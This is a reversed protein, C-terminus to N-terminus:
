RGFFDACIVSVRTIKKCKSCVCPESLGPNGDLRDRHKRVKSLFSGPYSKSGKFAGGGVTHVRVLLKDLDPAAVYSAETSGTSLRLVVEGFHPDDFTKADYDPERVPIKSLDV